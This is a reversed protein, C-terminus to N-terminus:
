EVAQGPFRSYEIYNLNDPDLGVIVFQEDNRPAITVHCDM